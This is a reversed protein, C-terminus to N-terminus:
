RAKKHGWVKHLNSVPQRMEEPAFAEIGLRAAPSEELFVLLRKVIAPDHYTHALAGVNCAACVVGMVRGTKHDHDVHWQTPRNGCLPCKGEMADVMARYQAPTLGYQRKLAAAREKCSRSCFRRNKHGRVPVDDMPCIYGNPPDDPNQFHVSQTGEMQCDKCWPFYGSPRSADRSFRTLPKVKKCKRCRPNPTSRCTDCLRKKSGLETPEGCQACLSPKRNRLYEQRRAEPLRSPITVGIEGGRDERRVQEDDM